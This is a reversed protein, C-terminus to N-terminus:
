QDGGANSYIDDSGSTPEYGHDGSDNTGNPGYSWFWPRERSSIDSPAASQQPNQFGIPQNWADWVENEGTEWTENRLAGMIKPIDGVRQVEEIFSDIDVVLPDFYGGTEAHYEDIISDLTNLMAQTQKTKSDELVRAGVVLLVTLLLAVIVVAVMLEVLTFGFSNAGCALRRGCYGCRTIRVKAM